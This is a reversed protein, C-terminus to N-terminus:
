PLQKKWPNALPEGVSIGQFTQAISKWYDEILTEGKTYYSIVISPSPFKMAYACPESVTGFTGTAGGAIFKLASMQYSDTLMGGYSTLHDAVAGPPFQNEAIKDVSALGQFYFLADSTGSIYDANRIETNIFPSLAKGLGSKYFVTARLSRVRDATNMLTLVCVRITIAVLTASHMAFLYISLCVNKKMYM